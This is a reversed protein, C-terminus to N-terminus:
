NLRALAALDIAADEPTVWRVFMVGCPCTITLQYGNSLPETADGVLQGDGRDSGSIWVIARIKGPSSWGSSAM